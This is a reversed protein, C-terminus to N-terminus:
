AKGSAVLDGCRDGGSARGARFPLRASQGGTPLAYSISRDVPQASHERHRDTRSVGETAGGVPLAGRSAYGRPRAHVGSADSARAGGDSHFHEEIRQARISQEADPWGIRCDRLDGGRSHGGDVRLSQISRSRVFLGGRRERPLASGAVHGGCEAAVDSRDDAKRSAGKRGRTKGSADTILIAIEPPFIGRYFKLSDEAKANDPFDALHKELSSTANILTQHYSSSARELAASREGDLADAMFRLMLVMPIFPVLVLLLLLARLQKPTIEHLTM